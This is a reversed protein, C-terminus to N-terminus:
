GSISTSISKPSLSVDFVANLGAENGNGSNESDNIRPTFEVVLSHKVAFVTDNTLYPDQSSYLQTTLSHYEPHTVQNTDSIAIVPTFTM